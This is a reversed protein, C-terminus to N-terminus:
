QIYVSSVPLECLFLNLQKIDDGTRTRRFYVWTMYFEIYLYLLNQIHLM